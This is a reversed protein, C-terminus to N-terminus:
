GPGRQGAPLFRKVVWHLGVGAAILLLLAAAGLFLGEIFAQQLFLTAVAIGYCGILAGATIAGMVGRRSMGLFRGAISGRVGGSGFFPLADDGWTEAM